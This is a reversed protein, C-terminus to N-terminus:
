IENFVACKLRLKVRKKRNLFFFRNFFHVWKTLENM